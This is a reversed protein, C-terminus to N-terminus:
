SQSHYPIPEFEWICFHFFNDPNCSIYYADFEVQHVSSPPMYPLQIPSVHSMPMGWSTGLNNQLLRLTMTNALFKIYRAFVLTM